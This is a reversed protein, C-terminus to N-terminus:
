FPIKDVPVDEGGDGGPIEDPRIPSTDLEREPGAPGPTGPPTSPKGATSKHNAIRMGYKAKFHASAETGWPTREKQQRTSALDWNEYTKGNRVDHRCVLQVGESQPNPDASFEPNDFDGNFGLRELRDMTYPEAKPTIWWHSERREPAIAVWNGNAAQHTVEWSVFVFPTETSNDLRDTGIETLRGFYSGEELMPM